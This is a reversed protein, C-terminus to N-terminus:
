FITTIFYPVDPYERMWVRFRDADDGNFCEIGIVDYLGRHARFQWVTSVFRDFDSM